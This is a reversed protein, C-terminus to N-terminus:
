EAGVSLKWKTVQCCTDLAAVIEWLLPSSPLSLARQKETSLSARQRSISVILFVILYLASARRHSSYVVPQSEGPGGDEEDEFKDKDHCSSHRPLRGTFTAM